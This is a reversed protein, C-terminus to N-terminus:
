FLSFSAVLTFLTIVKRGGLSSLENVVVVSFLDMCAVRYFVRYHNYVHHVVHDVHVHHCNNGHLQARGLGAWKYLNDFLHLPVHM